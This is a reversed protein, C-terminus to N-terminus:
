GVPGDTIEGTAPDVYVLVQPGQIGAKVLWLAWLHEPETIGLALLEHRRNEYDM